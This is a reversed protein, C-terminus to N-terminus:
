LHWPIHRLAPGADPQCPDCDWWAGSRKLRGPCICTNASAMGGSGIPSGGKRAFRDDLREQPRPLSGLLTGSEAAAPTAAPQMRQLGWIVGPVEGYFRRALAAECGARPRAPHTGYPLAAVKHLPERGHDYDLSEVASPFLAQAQTWIWRAGDAGVGVRVDQAPILGAAKIPRLAAATAEDTQVQPWSLVPVMRDAALRSCRFGHAERWAGRWRARTARAQKRGPRRGTATEPRPPVDAGDIALVLIPRWPQGLAVAAVTARIAERSPAVELVTVGAAVAHTVEHATHARLSLGTLAECLAWATAYPMAQTLQVAAQQVDPPQRRNTLELAADLPARGRECRECSCSPRRLRIAGVLTEVTREPLGRASWTQGCQPCLATRPELAARHAHEGLGETVAQTWEQRLAFVAQTLEELTPQPAKVPDEVRQRWRDFREQLCQRVATRRQADRCEERSLIAADPM